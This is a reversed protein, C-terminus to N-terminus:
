PELHWPRPPPGLFRVRLAQGRAAQVAGSVGEADFHRVPSSRGAKIAAEHATWYRLFAAEKAKRRPPVRQGHRRLLAAWDRQTGLRELDVGAVADAAATGVVWNGSHALSLFPAPYGRKHRAAPAGEANLSWDAPSGAVTLGCLQRLLWRGALYQQRRGLAGFGAARRVEAPSLMLREALPYLESVRGLALTVPARPVSAQATM